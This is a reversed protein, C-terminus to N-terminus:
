SLSIGQNIVGFMQSLTRKPKLWSAGVSKFSIVGPPDILFQPEQVMM